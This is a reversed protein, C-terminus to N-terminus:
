IKLNQWFNYIELLTVPFSIENSQIAKSWKFKFMLKHMCSQIVHMFIDFLVYRSFKNHSIDLTHLANSYNEIIDFPMYFLNEFALSLSDVVDVSPKDSSLSNSHRCHLDVFILRGLSTMALQEVEDAEKQLELENTYDM